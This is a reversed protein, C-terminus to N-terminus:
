LKMVSAKESEMMFIVTLNSNYKMVEESPSLKLLFCYCNCLVLVNNFNKFM